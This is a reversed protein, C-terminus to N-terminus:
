HVVSCEKLTIIGLSQDDIRDRVTVPQGNVVSMVADPGSVFCQMSTFGSYDGGPRLAVFYSGLVQSVNTATGSTQVIRDKYYGLAAVKNADFQQALTVSSVKLVPVATPVASPVDTAAPASSGAPTASQSAGSGGFASTVGFFVVVAGLTTLVKLHLIADAAEIGPGVIVQTLGEREGLQQGAHPRQRPTRGLRVPLALQLHGVEHQVHRCVTDPTSLLGNGQAGLLERQEVIQHAMGPLDQRALLNDLM